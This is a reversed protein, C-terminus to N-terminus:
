TFLSPFMQEAKIKAKLLNKPNSLMMQSAAVMSQHILEKPGVQSVILINILDREHTKRKRCDNVHNSWAQDSISLATKLEKSTLRINLERLTYAIKLVAEGTLWGITELTELMELTWSYESALLSQDKKKDRLREIYRRNTYIDTTLDAVAIAYMKNLILLQTWMLRLKRRKTLDDMHKFMKEKDMYKYLYSVVFSQLSAIKKVKKEFARNKFIYEKYETM